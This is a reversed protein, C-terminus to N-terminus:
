TQVGVRVNSSPQAAYIEAYIRAVPEYVGEPIAQDIDVERFLQRALPPREIVPVGGRRALRKMKEVIDGSGKAILRPARMSEREYRLAVAFHTPNTILVDADPVRGLSKSRKAAERQLEKIKARVHPDGERRKVEEKLERRSMRMKKGYDWRTYAFDLIAVILLVLALKFALSLIADLLVPAYGKPDIQPMALVGPLMSMIVLYAVTALLSLKILTKAAEFLMRKSFVRKFGQVPNIRKPDPKLPFFTFIPGTQALNSFVAILLVTLFFPTLIFALATVLSGCWMMFESIEFSVTPAQELIRRQLRLTDALFRTGGIALLGIGGAIMFLSNVDLSKFVQGKRRAEELKFPTAQESKEQDQEAM